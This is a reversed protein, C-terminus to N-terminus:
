LEASLYFPASSGAGGNITIVYAKGDTASSGNYVGIHVSQPTNPYCTAQRVNQGEVWSFNAQNGSQTSTSSPTARMAVPLGSYAQYASYSAGLGPQAAAIVGSFQGLQFYRQCLSLETGYSRYDFNTATTGVEIQVGTAYWTAGNTSVLNVSGTGTRYNGAVWANNSPTTYTSGMGFSFSLIVCGTNNTNWTGTTAGPITVTKYEWTNAASITYLFGYSMSGNANFLTGGMSGTVSSKVWFSLTVPKASSTGWALDSFNFGEIIQQMLYYDSGSPSRAASVTVALSNSFGSPADTSQQVTYTSPTSMWVSWRDLTYNGNAPTVSAGANRQDIVMSGNIIRNKFGPSVGTSGLAAVNVANTM